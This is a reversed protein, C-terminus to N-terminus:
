SNLANNCVVSVMAGPVGHGTCDAAAMFVGSDTPEMWYFDGAVVDKPMYLVFSQPLYELIIRDPPLIASQIRKAYVISDTIEKHAEEIKYKQTEVEQKQDDIIDRQRRTIRLRNFVFLLFVAILTAGGLLFYNIVVQRKKDADRLALEKQHNVDDLAKKKEYEYETEKEIALKQNELNVLSDRMSYYLDNYKLADIANGLKANISALNDCVKKISEVAGLERSMQYSIESYKKALTLQDNHYYAAGLYYNSSAMAMKNKVSESLKLAEKHMEIAKEHDGKQDVIAAMNNMDLAIGSVDHIERRIELSKEYYKVAEDWNGQNHYLSGINSYSFAGFFYFVCYSATDGLKMQCSGINVRTIGVGVDNGGKEYLDRSKYYCNIAIDLQGLDAYIDGINNIIVASNNINGVKLSLPLSKEYFELAKQPDGTENYLYALWGYSESKGYTYNNKESLERSRECFYIATDPNQSYYINALLLYAGAKTTDLVQRDQILQELSDIENLTFASFIQAQTARPLLFLFFLISRRLLSLM